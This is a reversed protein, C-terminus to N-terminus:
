GAFVTDSGQAVTSGCAISDGVRGIAKGDAFVSGSGQALVSPHCQQKACHVAWADGQRHVGRGNVFVTGSASTSARPPWPAHGSCTDGLRTVAPM